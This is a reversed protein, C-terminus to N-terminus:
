APPCLQQAGGGGGPVQVKEAVDLAVVDELAGRVDHHAVAEDAVHHELGAFAQGRMSLSKMRWSNVRLRQGLQSRMPKHRHELAELVPDVVAAVVARRQQAQASQHELAVARGVGEGELVRQGRTHHPACGGAPGHAPGCRGRHASIARRGPRNGVGPSVLRMVVVKVASNRADGAGAAVQRRPAHGIGVQHGLQGLPRRSRLSGFPDDLAGADPRAVKGRGTVLQLSRASAAARAARCAAPRSAASMSRIMTAVDVGSM